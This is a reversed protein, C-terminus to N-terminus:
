GQMGTCNEARELATKKQIIDISIGASLLLTSGVAVGYSGLPTINRTVM